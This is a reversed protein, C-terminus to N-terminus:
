SLVQLYYDDTIFREFIPFYPYFNVFNNNFYFPSM